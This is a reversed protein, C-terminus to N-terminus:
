LCVVGVQGPLEDSWAIKGFLENRATTRIHVWAM